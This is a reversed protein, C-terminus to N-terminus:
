GCWGQGQQEMNGSGLFALPWRGAKNESIMHCVVQVMYYHGDPPLSRKFMMLWENAQMKEKQAEMDDASVTTDQAIQLCKWVKPLHRNINQRLQLSLHPQMTAYTDNVPQQQAPSMQPQSTSQPPTYLQYTTTPSPPIQQQPYCATDYYPQEVSPQPSQHPHLYRTPEPKATFAGRYGAAQKLQQTLCGQQPIIKTAPSMASSQGLLAPTFSCDIDTTSSTRLLSPEASAPTQKTQAQQRTSRVSRLSLSPSSAVQPRAANRPASSLKRKKTAKQPIKHAGQQRKFAGVPSGMESRMDLGPSNRASSAGSFTEHGPTQRRLSQRRSAASDQVHYHESTNYSRSPMSNTYQTPAFTLAPYMQPHLGPEQTVVLREDPGYLYDSYAPFFDCSRQFDEWEKDRFPM